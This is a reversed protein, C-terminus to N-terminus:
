CTRMLESLTVGGGGGGTNVQAGNDGAHDQGFWQGTFELLQHFVGGSVRTLLTSVANAAAARCESAPDSVLRVVLALYFVSSLQDLNPEPLRKILQDCLHLAALRGEAYEYTVGSIIQKMEYVTCLICMFDFCSPGFMHQARKM